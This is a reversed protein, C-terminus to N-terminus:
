FNPDSYNRRFRMAKHFIKTDTEYLDTAYIRTFDLTAMASDVAIAYNSLSAKGWLDIQFIIESGIEQDDAFLDGVNSVEFYSLLPLNTFDPPYSFYFGTLTSLATATQLASLVAPKLNQM